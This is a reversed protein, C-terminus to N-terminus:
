GGANINSDSKVAERLIAGDIGTKAESFTASEKTMRYEVADGNDDFRLARGVAPRM